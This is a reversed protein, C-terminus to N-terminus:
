NSTTLRHYRSSLHPLVPQKVFKTHCIILFRTHELYLVHQVARFPVLQHGLLMRIITHLMTNGYIRTQTTFSNETKDDMVKSELHLNSAEQGTLEYIRTQTKFSKETKGNMVESEFHLNSAEQGTLEYIRTQTKFSKETKGNM